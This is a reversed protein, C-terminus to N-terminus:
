DGLQYRMFRRVVINEGLKAIKESVMDAVVQEQNKVFAQEMLCMQALWKDLKGEIIKEAAHAPKDACQAAAIDREKAVLDAPVEERRIYLPAIAAIHMCLDRALQRFEDTKAVFDTECNIEILVGVKNGVHIYSEIVGEGAERGAKKAAAALGKKKLLAIAEDFNGASEVLAKKCDMLGAGTRGRLENVMQATIDM